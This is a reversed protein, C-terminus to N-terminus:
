LSLSLCLAVHAEARRPLLPKRALIQSGKRWGVRGLVPLKLGGHQSASGRIRFTLVLRDEVGLCIQVPSQLIGLRM